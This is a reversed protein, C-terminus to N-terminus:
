ILPLGQHVEGAKPVGELGPHFSGMRAQELRQTGPSGTRQTVLTLTERIVEKNEADIM